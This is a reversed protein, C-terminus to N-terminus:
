EARFEVCRGPGDIVVRVAFAVDVGLRGDIRWPERVGPPAEAAPVDGLTIQLNGCIFPLTTIRHTAAPRVGGLGRLEDAGQEGAVHDVLPWGMRQALTIRAETSPSGTDLLFSMPTGGSQLRVIPEHLLVLNPTTETAHASSRRVVVEGKKGAIEVVAHRLVEWGVLFAAGGVVERLRAGDVVAVPVDHATLSGFRLLPLVGAAADSRAGTIGIVPLPPVDLLRVGIRAADDRDIVCTGAGTDLIATLTAAAASGEVHVAVAAHGQLDTVMPLTAPTPAVDVTPVPLALMAAPVATDRLELEPHDTRLRALRDWRGEVRLLDLLTKRAWAVSRDDARLEPNPNRTGLETLEAAAAHSGGRWARDLADVCRREANSGAATRATALDLQRM